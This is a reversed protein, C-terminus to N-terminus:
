EYGHLCYFPTCKIAHCYRNNLAAEADGLLEAWDRQHLATYNRIFAEALGNAKEVSGNGQSHDKATNYIKVEGQQLGDRFAESYAVDNDSSLTKFVGFRQIVRRQLIKLLATGTTHRSTPELLVFHSFKDFITFIRDVKVGQVEVEPLDVVFDIAFIEPGPLQPQYYGFLQRSAPKNIQCTGCDKVFQRVTSM